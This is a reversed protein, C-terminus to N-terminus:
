RIRLSRGVSHSLTELLQSYPLFLALGYVFVVAVGIALVLWIPLYDRLWQIERAARRRHTEAVHRAMTVFTQQRAGSGILWALLPPFGLLQGRIEQPSAGEALSAAFERASRVM